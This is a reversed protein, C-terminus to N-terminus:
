GDAGEPAAGPAKETGGELIGLAVCRGCSCNLKAPHKTGLVAQAREVRERVAESEARERRAGEDHGAMIANALWARLMDLEMLPNRKVIERAWKDADMGLRALMEGDSETREEVRGPKPAEGKPAEGTLLTRISSALAAVEASPHAGYCLAQVGEAQRAIAEIRAVSVHVQPAPPAAELPSCASHAQHPGTSGCECIPETHPIAELLRVLVSARYRGVDGHNPYVREKALAHLFAREERTICESMPAGESEAGPDQHAELM